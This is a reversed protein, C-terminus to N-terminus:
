GRIAFLTAVGRRGAALPEDSPLDHSLAFGQNLGLALDAGDQGRGLIIYLRARVTEPDPRYAQAPQAELLEPQIDALFLDPQQKRAM